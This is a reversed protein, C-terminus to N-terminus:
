VDYAFRHPISDVDEFDFRQREKGVKGLYSPDYSIQDDMTSLKKSLKILRQISSDIYDVMGHTKYQEPDELFSVMGDKQNITAFIEGNQIMELVHMEAEKASNLQVTDAIDQLSLTLYTQTLRQINKKYMSSVVQKVLGLNNDSHFKERHKQVYMELEEIKGTEYTNALEIYHQCFNKLYRQTCSSTYKPLSSSLQHGHHILSVLAYKKYAEVAIASIQSMPATVVSHLLELAKKFHKQGICIMGGYYGYLFLDKPQDVEFIDDELLSLGIKYCKTLLCLQLFDPHLSTLHESSSQLKRVATLLPGVGRLPADTLLVLDKFRKCIGIFKDASLQIQETSCSTIFRASVLVMSAAQERSVTDSTWAALFYLYGLSHVAPDLQDLFPRLSRSERWLAEEAQKLHTHLVALDNDSSSLGQIRKVLSEVGNMTTSSTPEKGSIEIKRKRDTPTQHQAEEEDEIKCKSAENRKEM